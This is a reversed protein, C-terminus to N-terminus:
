APAPGQPCVRNSGPTNRGFMKNELDMFKFVKKSSIIM